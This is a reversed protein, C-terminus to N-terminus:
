QKLGPERVVRYYLATGTTQSKRTIEFIEGVKAGFFRAVPDTTLITPINEKKCRLKELFEAEEKPQMLRHAPVLCHKTINFQLEEILFHEFAMKISKIFSKCAPNLKSPTVLVVADIGQASYENALAELSRKALSSEITFHVALPSERSCVFNLLSPNAEFGSFQALFSAYDPVLQPTSFGRATLMEILTNRALWYEEKM